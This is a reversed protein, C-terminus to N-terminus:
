MIDEDDDFEFVRLLGDEREEEEEEEEEKRPGDEGYDGREGRERVRMSQAMWGDDGQMGRREGMEGIDESQIQREKGRGTDGPYHARIEFGDGMSVAEVDKRKAGIGSKGDGNGGLRDMERERERERERGEGVGIWRGVPRPLGGLGVGMKKLGWGALARAGRNTSAM